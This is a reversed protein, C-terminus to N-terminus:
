DSPARLLTLWPSRTVPEFGAARAWRLPHTGQEEDQSARGVVLLEYRGGRLARAFRAYWRGEDESFWGDIGKM